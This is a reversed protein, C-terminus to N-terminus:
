SGRWVVWALCLGHAPATPGARRRDRADRVEVIWDADRRGDGVELLSGVLIRVMNKMFAEGRVVITVRQDAGDETTAGAAREEDVLGFPGPVALPHAGTSVQVDVAHIRRITTRAQCDAARFSAFDHEGELHKAARAMAEVDLRGPRHWTTRRRLPDRLWSTHIEYVYRKGGNGFRPDVLEDPAGLEMAETAVVDPPLHSALGRLLGRPPIAFPAVFGVLNGRAHVGADTRSAGHTVVPQHHIKALAAELEGQVTRVGNQRAFGHFDTGDYAIRLLVGM